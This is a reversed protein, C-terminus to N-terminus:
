FEVHVRTGYVWVPGRDSNYAPNWVRQVNFSIAAGKLLHASYYAEVIRERAYNLQGDGILIGIGGAAFYRRASGSLGNTAAAVGVVDQGRYWAGGKLSMGASVSRNIETFEYAEYKGSNASVRGFVGLDATLQQELGFVWGPNTRYARVVAVDPVQGTLEGQAVADDYRAMKARNAFVLFKLKGPQGALEHRHELEAIGARQSPHLGTVRGNPDNSLTFLGGRLSWAGANWEAAAGLTYGWSDAAYDFAGGDLISWNLFDARPDHAYTNTDFVDVVAFKGVTFVLNDSARTGAFQNLGSEVPESSGGLNVVHRVFARPLRVYPRNQGVKYAEGSTFGAVGVTNRLGFGQDIEPNLWLETREGLRYGVFATIDTTEEARGRSTLSNPGEYPSRFRPHWQTVNTIQYDM